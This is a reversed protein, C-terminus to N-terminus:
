AIMANINSWESSLVGAHGIWVLVEYLNSANTLCEVLLSVLLNDEM